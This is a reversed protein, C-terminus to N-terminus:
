RSPRANGWSVTLATVDYASPLRPKGEVTAPILAPGTFSGGADNYPDTTRIADWALRLRSEEERWKSATRTDGRDEALRREAGARVM